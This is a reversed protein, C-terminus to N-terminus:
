LYTGFIRERVIEAYRTAIERVKTKDLMFIGGNRHNMNTLEVFVNYWMGWKSKLGKRSYYFFVCFVPAFM